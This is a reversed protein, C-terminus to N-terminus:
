SSRWARRTARSSCGLSSPSCPRAVGVSLLVIRLISVGAFAEANLLLFSGYAAGGLLSAPVVLWSPLELWAGACFAVSAALMGALTLAYAARRAAYPVLRRAFLAILVSAAVYGIDFVAHPLPAADMGVAPEVFVLSLWARAFAVGFFALSVAGVPLIAHQLRKMMPSNYPM